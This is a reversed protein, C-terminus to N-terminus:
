IIGWVSGLTHSPKLVHSELYVLLGKDLKFAPMASQLLGGIRTGRDYVTVQVGERNLREACALGAPGAGIVAVRRDSRRLPEVPRWAADLAREALTREVAGITV